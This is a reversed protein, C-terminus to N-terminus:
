WIFVNISYMYLTPALLFMLVRGGSREEGRCVTNTILIQSCMEQTVVAESPFKCGKMTQYRSGEDIYLFGPMNVGHMRQCIERASREENLVSFGQM